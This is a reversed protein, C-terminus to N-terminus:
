LTSDRPTSLAAWRLHRRARKGAQWLFRLRPMSWRGPRHGVSLRTVVLPTRSGVGYLSLVEATPRPDSNRVLLTTPVGADALAAATKIIQVGNARELPFRIDAPVLLPRSM